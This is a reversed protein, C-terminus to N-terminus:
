FKTQKNPIVTVKGDPSIHLHSQENMHPVWLDIMKGQKTNSGAEWWQFDTIHEPKLQGTNIAKQVLAQRHQLFKEFEPHLEAVKILYKNINM